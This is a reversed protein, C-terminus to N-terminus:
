AILRIGPAHYERDLIALLTETEDRQLLAATRAEAVIHRHVQEALQLQVLNLRENALTERRQQESLSPLASTYWYARLASEMERLPRVVDSFSAGARACTFAVRPYQGLLHVRRPESRRLDYLLNRVEQPVAIERTIAICSDHLAREVSTLNQGRALDRRNNQYSM